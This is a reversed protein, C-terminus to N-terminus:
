KYFAEHQGKLTDDIRIRASPLIDEPLKAVDFFRLDTSEDSIQLEGGVREVEFLMIVYHVTYGSPYRLICYNKPDSYVGVLRKVVVHLGTEEFTERVVCQEATEAIEMAGGPLAWVGNDSRRHLLVQNTENILVANTGPHIKDPMKDLPRGLSDYLGRWSLNQQTM